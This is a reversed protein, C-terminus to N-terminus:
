VETEKNEPLNLSSLFFLVFLFSVFLKCDLLNVFFVNSELIILFEIINQNKIIKGGSPQIRLNRSLWPM